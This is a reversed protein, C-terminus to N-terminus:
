GIIREVSKLDPVIIVTEPPVQLSWGIESAAAIIWWYKADGYSDGAIVDLRDGLRSTFVRIKPIAGYKIGRRIANISRTSRLGEGSFLVGDGNYRSFAPM